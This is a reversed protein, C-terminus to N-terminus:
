VNEWVIKSTNKLNKLLAILDLILFMACFHGTERGSLTKRLAGWESTSFPILSIM